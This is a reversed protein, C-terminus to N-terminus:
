QSTISQVLITDGARNLIGVVKVKQAPFKAPQDQNSLKYVHKPTVLVYVGGRRICSQVCEAETSGMSKHLLMEQHSSTRSHVNFACQSDSIEGVFTNTDTGAFAIGTLLFLSLLKKM